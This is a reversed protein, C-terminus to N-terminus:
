TKFASFARSATTGTLVVCSFAHILDPEIDSRDALIGLRCHCTAPNQGM